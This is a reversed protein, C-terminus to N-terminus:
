ALEIRLTDMLYKRNFIGTLHDVNATKELDRIRRHLEEYTKKLHVLNKARMLLEEPQFPRTLFEQAGLEFAKVKYDTQASGSILIVPIHARDPTDQLAKLFKLGDMGPLASNCIILDVQEKRLIQLGEAGDIAEYVRDIMGSQAFLSKVEDMQRLTHDVVLVKFKM